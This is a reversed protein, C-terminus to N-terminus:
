WIKCILFNLSEPILSSFSVISTFPLAPYIFPIDMCHSGAWCYFPIFMCCSPHVEFYNHQICSALGFPICIIHNWKYFVRSFACEDLSLSFLCTNGPFYCTSLPLISPNCLSTVLNKPTIIINVIKITIIIEPKM